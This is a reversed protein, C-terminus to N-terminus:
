RARIGLWNWVYTKNAAPTFLMPDNISSCEIKSVAGADNLLKIVHEAVNKDVGAILVCPLSKHLHTQIEKAHELNLCGILRLSKVLPLTNGSVSIVSVQYKDM